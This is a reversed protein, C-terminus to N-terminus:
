GRRETPEFDGDESWRVMGLGVLLDVAEEYASIGMTCYRRTGDSAVYGCAQLMVDLLVPPMYELLDECRNM